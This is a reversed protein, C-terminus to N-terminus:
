SDFDSAATVQGGEGDLLLIGLLILVDLLLELLLNAVGAIVQGLDQAVVVM